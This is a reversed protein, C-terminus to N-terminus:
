NYHAERTVWIMFFRGATRSVWTTDRPRFIAQLFSLSELGTNKDPSIGHVSSGQPSCDMIDCLTLYSQTALVKVKLVEWKKLKKILLITQINRLIQWYRRYETMIPMIPWLVEKDKSVKKLRMQIWEQKM